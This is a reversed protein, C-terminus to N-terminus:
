PSRRAAHAVVVKDSDDAAAHGEREDDIMIEVRMDPTIVLMVHFMIRTGSGRTVRSWDHPIHQALLSEVTERETLRARDPRRQHIDLFNPKAVMEGKAFRYVRDGTEALEKEM